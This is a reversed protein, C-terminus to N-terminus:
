PQPLTITGHWRPECWPEHSWPYRDDAVRSWILRGAHRWPDLVLGDAFSQGTATLVVANHERLTSGSHACAWRVQLTAPRESLLRQGLLDTWQWCLGWQQLGLNIAVNRRKAGGDLRHAVRAEEVTQVAVRALRDAEAADVTPGLATLARALESAQAALVASGRRAVVPATQCSAALVGVAMGWLPATFRRSWSNAVAAKV